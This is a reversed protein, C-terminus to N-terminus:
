LRHESTWIPMHTKFPPDISLDRDKSVHRRTQEPCGAAESHLIQPCGTPVHDFGGANWYGRELGVAELWEVKASGTVSGAALSKDSLSLCCKVSNGLRLNLQYWRFKWIATMPTTFRFLYLYRLIEQSVSSREAPKCLFRLNMVANVVAWSKFRDECNFGTM